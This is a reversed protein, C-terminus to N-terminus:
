KHSLKFNNLISILVMVKDSHLRWCVNRRNKQTLRTNLLTVNLVMPVNLRVVVIIIVIAIPGLIPPYLSRSGLSNRRSTYSYVLDQFKHVVHWTLPSGLKRTDALNWLKTIRKTFCGYTQFFFFAEDRISLSWRKPYTVGGHVEQVSKAVWRPMVRFNLVMGPYGSRDDNPQKRPHMGTRFDKVRRWSWICSNKFPIFYAHATEGSM